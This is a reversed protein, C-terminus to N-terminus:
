DLRGVHKAVCEELMLGLQRCPGRIRHQKRCEMYSQRIEECPSDKVRENSLLICDSVKIALELSYEPGKGEAKKANFDYILDACTIKTIYSEAEIEGSRQPVVM